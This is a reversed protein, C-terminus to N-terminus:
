KEKLKLLTRLDELHYKTAEITGQLKADKDTKIGDKDLAEAFAQLLARGINGPLKLSPEIIQAVEEDAMTKFTLQTPLAVSFKGDGREEFIFLEIGGNM